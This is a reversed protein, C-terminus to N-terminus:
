SKKKITKFITKLLILRIVLGLLIVFGGMILGSIIHNGFFNEIYLPFSIKDICQNELATSENQCNNYIKVINSVLISVSVLVTLLSSIALSIIYILLDKPTFKVSM